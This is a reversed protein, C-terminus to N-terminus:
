PQSLREALPGAAKAAASAFTAAAKGLDLAAQDKIPKGNVQPHTGDKDWGLRKAYTGGPEKVRVIVELPESTGITLQDIQATVAHAPPTAIKQGSAGLAVGVSIALALNAIPQKVPKEKEDAM